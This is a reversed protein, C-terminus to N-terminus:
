EKVREIREKNITAENQKIKEPAIKTQLCGYTMIGFATLIAGIYGWVKIDKLVRKENKELIVEKQKQSFEVFNSLSSLPSNAKGRDPGLLYEPGNNLNHNNQTM